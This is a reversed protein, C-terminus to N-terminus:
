KNVLDREQAECEAEQGHDNQCGKPVEFQVHRISFKIEEGWWTCKEKDTNGTQSEKRREM